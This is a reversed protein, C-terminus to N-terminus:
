KKRSKDEQVTGILAPGLLLQTRERGPQLLRSFFLRQADRAFQMVLQAAAQSGYLHVNGPYLTPKRSASRLTAKLRQDFPRFPHAL